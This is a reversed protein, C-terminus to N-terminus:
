VCLEEQGYIKKTNPAKVQPATISSGRMVLRPELVIHREDMNEKHILNLLMRASHNAIDQMPQSITTLNPTVFLCRSIDLINNDGKVWDEPYRKFDAGADVSLDIGAILIAFFEGFALLHRENKNFIRYCREM